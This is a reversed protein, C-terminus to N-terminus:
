VATYAYMLVTSESDASVVTCRLAVQLKRQLASQVCEPLLKVYPCVPM